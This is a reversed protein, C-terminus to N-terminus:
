KGESFAAIAARATALENELKRILALPHVDQTGIGTRFIRTPIGQREAAAYVASELEVYRPRFNGPRALVKVRVAGVVASSGPNQEQIRANIVDRDTLSEWTCANRGSPSDSWGFSTRIMMSTSGGGGSTFATRFYAVTGEEPEIEPVNHNFM